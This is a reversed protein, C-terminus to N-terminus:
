FSPLRCMVSGITVAPAIGAYVIPAIATSLFPFLESRAVKTIWICSPPSAVRGAIAVRATLLGVANAFPISSIPIVTTAALPKTGSAPSTTSSM